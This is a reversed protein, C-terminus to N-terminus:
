RVLDVPMGACGYIVDVRPLNSRGALDAFTGALVPNAEGGYYFQPEGNIVRGLCGSELARFAEPATTECLFKGALLRLAIVDFM